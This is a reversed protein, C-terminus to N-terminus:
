LFASGPLWKGRLVGNSDPLIVELTDLDPYDAEFRAVEEQWDVGGAPRQWATRHTQLM